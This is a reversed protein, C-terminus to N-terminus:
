ENLAQTRFWRAYEPLGEQLTVGPHFGLQAVRTIDAGWRIPDGPRRIGRFRPTLGLGLQEALSAALDALRTEIGSALNYAGSDFIGGEAIARIGRAIDRVHIFDRTEEGTGDLLIEGRMTAMRCIDWLIQRRLGPGYASFIRVACARIGYLAGYERLLEECMVRHFGYPSVPSLESNEGVPLCEPNGYVAASSILLFRALPVCARVADLVHALVGASGEFDILPHAISDQVSAPGAALVIVGPAVEKLLEGFDGSPLDMVRSEWHRAYPSDVDSPSRRDVVVTRKGSAAMEDAIHAGLFGQGGVVLVTDMLPDPAVPPASQRLACGPRM